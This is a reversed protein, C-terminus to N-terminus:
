LDFIIMIPLLFIHRAQLVMILNEFPFLFADTWDLNM